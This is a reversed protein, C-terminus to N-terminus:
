TRQHVVCNLCLTKLKEYKVFFEKWGAVDFEETKSLREFKDGLIEIPISLEVQLQPRSLCMECESKRAQQILSQVVSRLRQIRKARALCLRIINRSSASLTV